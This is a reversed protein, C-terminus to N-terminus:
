HHHFRCSSGFRCNGNQFNFCQASISSQGRFPVSSRANSQTSTNPHHSYRCRAGFHCDGSQFRFCSGPSSAKHNGTVKRNYKQESSSTHRASPSARWQQQLVQVDSAPMCKSLNKWTFDDPRLKLDLLKQFYQRAMSTNRKLAFAFIVTNITRTNPHVGAAEM